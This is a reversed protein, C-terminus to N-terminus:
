KAVNGGSFIWPSSNMRILLWLNILLWLFARQRSIDAQKMAAVEAM